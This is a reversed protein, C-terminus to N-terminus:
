YYRGLSWALSVQAIWSDNSNHKINSLLIVVFDQAVQLLDTVRIVHLWKARNFALDESTKNVM